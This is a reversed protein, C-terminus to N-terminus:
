ASPGGNAKASGVDGPPSADPPDSPPAANPGELAKPAEPAESSEPLVPADPAPDDATRDPEAPSDRDIMEQLTPGGEGLTGLAGAPIGDLPSPSPAELRDRDLDHAWDVGVHGLLCGTAQALNALAIQYEVQSTVQQIRAANLSQLAQTLNSSPIQGRNFLTKYATYFREAARVQFETTLISDWGADLQDIADLVEQAVTIERQRRDAIARLRELVAARHRAIAAENGIPVRADIGISWGDPENGDFLESTARRISRGAAFGNANWAAKLDLQPLMENARMSVAVTRALQEYELQLLEARNELAAGVLVRPEFDFGVLRPTSDPRLAVTGDLSLGPEQMVVKLARVAQRLDRESRIVRDVASAMAVEFNYVNAISGAKAAVLRRQTELLSKSTRYFELDIRLVEWALHLRWYATEARIAENVVAVQAEARSAGLRTGAIVISAENYELGAGALLPQELSIGPVSGAFAESEVTPTRNEETTFTWDLSVNGGTRLPVELAPTATAIETETDITDDGYFAPNVTRGRVISAVFTSEFKAREARLGEAAIEPGILSSQIALNNEITARRVESLGIERPEGTTMRALLSEVMGAGDAPDDFRGPDSADSRRPTAGGLGDLTEVTGLRADLDDIRAWDREVSSTCGLLVITAAGPVLCSRRM